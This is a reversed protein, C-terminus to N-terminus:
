RNPQMLSHRFQAMKVRLPSVFNLTKLIQRPKEAAREEAIEDITPMVTSMGGTQCLIKTYSLGFRSRPNSADDGGKDTM